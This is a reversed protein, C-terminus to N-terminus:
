AHRGDEADLATLVQRLVEIVGGFHRAITFSDVVELDLANAEALVEYAQARAIDLPPVFTPRPVTLDLYPISSGM